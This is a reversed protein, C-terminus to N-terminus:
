GLDISGDSFLVEGNKVTLHVTQNWPAGQGPDRDVVVFNAAYGPALVGVDRWGAMRAPVATYADLVTPWALREDGHWPTEGEGCRDLAAAINRWPDSPEIPFDTGMLLTAGAKVMTEFAYDLRHPRAPLRDILPRDSLLQCPQVSLYLNPAVIRSCDGRDLHQVHEIRFARERHHPAYRGFVDLVDRVARDGIAHICPDLGQELAARVRADLEEGAIVPTGTTGADGMMWATGSGLSGDVFLKYGQIEVSAGCRHCEEPPIGEGMIYMTFTLAGQGAAHDLVEVGRAREVTHVGVIGQSLLHEQEAMLVRFHADMPYIPLRLALEDMLTERVIGVPGRDDCPLLDESADPLPGLRRMALTNLWASHGDRRSLWVPQDPIVRDLDHRSPLASDEWRYHDWGWGRVWEDGPHAAGWGAVADLVADLSPCDALGVRLRRSAAATLHCHADILGPLVVRGGLDIHRWGARSAEDGLAAIRGEDISVASTLGLGAGGTWCRCRTFVIRELTM